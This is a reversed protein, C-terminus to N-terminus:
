HDRAAVKAAHPVPDGCEKRSRNPNKGYRFLHLACDAMECRAVEARSDGSCDLCKARIAGVISRPAEPLRRGFRFPWLACHTSPCLRVEQLSGNCCNVCEARVAELPSPTIRRDQQPAAAPPLPPSPEGNADFM